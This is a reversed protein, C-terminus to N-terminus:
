LFWTVVELCRLLSKRASKAVKIRFCDNLFEWRLLLTYVLDFKEFAMRLYRENKFIYNDMFVALFETYEIVEDHNTDIACFLAEVDKEDLNIKSSDKFLKFGLPFFACTFPIEACENRVKESNTSLFPETETRM